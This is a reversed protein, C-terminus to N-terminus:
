VHRSKKTLLEKYDMDSKLIHNKLWDMMLGMVESNLMTQGAKEAQLYSDVQQEFREHVQMHENLKQYGAEALLKEEFRLHFEMYTIMAELCTQVSFERFDKRGMLVDDLTNILDIWKRHQSDLEEVGVSYTEDWQLLPM